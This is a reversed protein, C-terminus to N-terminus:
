PFFGGTPWSRWVTIPKDDAWYVSFKSVNELIKEGKKGELRQLWALRPNWELIQVCSILKPVM